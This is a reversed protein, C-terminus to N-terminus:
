EDVVQTQATGEDDPTFIDPSPQPSGYKAKWDLPMYDYPDHGTEDYEYEDPVSSKKKSKELPVDESEEEPIEVDMAEDESNAFEANDNLIDMEEQAAIAALWEEAADDGEKDEQEKTKALVSVFRKPLRRENPPANATVVVHCKIAKRASQYKTSTHITANSLREIDSYFQDINRQDISQARTRDYWIISQKDYVYVTNAWDAGPLVDFKASCYDFFTTKGTGSEESWIWIIRRKVPKEKLMELVQKQWTRLVIEPPETRVPRALFLEKVYNLKAATARVVDEDDSQLVDSWSECAQVKARVDVWDIKPKTQSNEDPRTGFEWPGSVRTEEKSCYEIAPKATRAKRGELHVVAPAFMQKVQQFRTQANLELYGQIHDRNSTPCCEVQYIMYKFRPDNEPVKFQLLDFCTVM